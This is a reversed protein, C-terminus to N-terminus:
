VLLAPLRLVSTRRFNNRALLTPVFSPTADSVDSWSAVTKAGGAGTVVAGVRSAALGPLAALALNSESAYNSLAFQGMNSLQAADGLLAQAEEATLEADTLFHYVALDGAANDSVSGASPRFAHGGPVQAVAFEASITPPTAGTMQFPAGRSVAMKGDADIVLLLPHVVADVSADSGDEAM